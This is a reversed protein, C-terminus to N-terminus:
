SSRIDFTKKPASRSVQTTFNTSEPQFNFSWSSLQQDAETSTIWHAKTRYKKADEKENRLLTKKWITKEDWEKQNSTEASKIGHQLKKVHKNCGSQTRELGLFRLRCCFWRCYTDCVLAEEKQCKNANNIMKHSQRLLRLDIWNNWLFFFFLFLFSFRPVSDWISSPFHCCCRWNVNIQLALFRTRPGFCLFTSIPLLFEAFTNNRYTKNRGKWSSFKGQRCHWNRACTRFSSPHQEGAHLKICSSNSSSFALSSSPSSVTFLKALAFQFSLSAPM